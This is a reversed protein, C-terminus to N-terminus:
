YVGVGCPLSDESFQRSASSCASVASAPIASTRKLLSAHINLSQRHAQVVGVGWGAKTSPFLM